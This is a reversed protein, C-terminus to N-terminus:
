KVEEVVVRGYVAARHDHHMGPRRPGYERIRHPTNWVGVLILPPVEGARLLREATADCGWPVGGFATEPDFLNQGDHLYFVPYRRDPETDYGPPVYVGLARRHPLFASPFDPHYRVADEIM